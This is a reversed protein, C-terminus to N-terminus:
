RPGVLGLGELFGVITEANEAPPPTAGDLVIEANKPAEYPSSIGTFESILGQRAKQYLGKSDRAECTDVPTDVFVEIFRGEPMLERVAHRTDAFPSIAACIAVGGHRVIESAVFGIRRINTDRDERSFGLGKSLNTRVVDGDLMTVRRGREELTAGVLEATTTKGAGSLGTFWLCFGQRHSPPHAEALIQAVEPRTFWDPLPKGSDLYERRAQTGSITRVLEDSRLHKREVYDGRDESFVFEEFALIEVGLEEQHELALVRAADPDYFPVNNSDVGPSAHDRGVIFKGAGYNRRIIAHWLAERPGAFRMALPLVALECGAASLHNEFLARYTRVRVHTDVDDAKTMGVVPHVLVADAQKLAARILAEHARHIPNRTQFAAVSTLGRRRIRERVEAPTMRLSGYAANAPLKVGQIRGSLNYRGWSRAENVLPHKADVTGLVGLCFEEYSWEYIEELHLIAMVDNRKDRLAVPSGIALQSVDDTSLTIPIPFLTGGALRMSAVVSRYDASGLFTDVPSFAGVLLLELDCLNRDTLQISPCSAATEVLQRAEDPGCLNEKLSGGYPSIPDSM